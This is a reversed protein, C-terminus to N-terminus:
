KKKFKVESPKQLFSLKNRFGDYIGHYIAKISQYEGLIFFKLSMYLVWRFSFYLTFFFFLFFSAHKRQLLIVNRTTLYVRIWNGINKKSAFGERHWLHAEANYYIKFGANLIRYSYDVDEINAFFNDDLVGITNIVDKKILMSCGNAFSVYKSQVSSTSDKKKWNYHEGLGSLKNIYGGAFYLFERNEGYFFIKPVVVGIQKDLSFSSIMNKLFFPDVVTDNNLLLFFDPDYERQAIQIGINNGGTFGYNYELNIVTIKKENNINEVLENLSNDISGNDVVFVKFTVHDVSMLSKLCDYTILASNWNLIIIGVKLNNM